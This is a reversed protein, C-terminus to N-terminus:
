AASSAPPTAPPPSAKHELDTRFWLLYAADLIGVTNVILLAIFWGKQGGRAAHWLAFGKVVVSAAALLILAIIFAPALHAFPHM